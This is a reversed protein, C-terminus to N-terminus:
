GLLNTQQSWLMHQLNALFAPVSNCRKLYVLVDPDLNAGFETHLLDLTGSSLTWCFRLEDDEREAFMSKVRLIVKSAGSSEGDMMDIQFGTLLYLAEKFAKTKEKFLRKLRESRKNEDVGRGGGQAKLEEIEAKLMEIQRELATAPARESPEGLARREPNQTLHLIKTGRSKYEGTAEAHEYEALKDLAKDLKKETLELQSELNDIKKQQSLIEKKQARTLEVSVGQELNEDQEEELEEIRAHAKKVIDQMRSFKKMVKAHHEVVQNQQDETMTHFMDDKIADLMELLSDREEELFQRGELAENTKDIASAYEERYRATEREKETIRKRLARESSKAKELNSESVKLRHRLQRNETQLERFINLAILPSVEQGHELIKTQLHKQFLQSWERREQVLADRETEAALLEKERDEFFRIKQKYPELSEAEEQFRQADRKLNQIERQLKGERRLASDLEMSLKQAEGAIANGKSLSEVELKLEANMEEQRKVKAKLVDMDEKLEANERVVKDGSFSGSASFSASTPAGSGPMHNEIHKEFLELQAIKEEIKREKERLEHELSAIQEELLQVEDEKTRRTERLETKLADLAEDREQRERVADMELRRRERKLKATEGELERARRLAQEARLREKRAVNETEVLAQRSRYRAEEAERDELRARKRFNQAQSTTPEGERPRLGFFSGEGDLFVSADGEGDDAVGSSSIPTMRLRALESAGVGWRWREGPTEM